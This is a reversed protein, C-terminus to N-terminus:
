SEASDSADSEPRDDEVVLDTLWGDRIPYRRGCGACVLADDEPTLPASQAARDEARCAICAPCALISLVDDPLPRM